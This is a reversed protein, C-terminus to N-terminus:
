NLVVNPTYLISRKLCFCDIKQSQSHGVMIFGYAPIYQIKIKLTDDIPMSSQTLNFEAVKTIPIEHKVSWNLSEFILIKVEQEFLCAIILTSNNIHTVAIPIDSENFEM